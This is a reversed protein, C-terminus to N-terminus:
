RNCGAREWDCQLLIVSRSDSSTDIGIFGLQKRLHFWKETDHDVNDVTDIQGGDSFFDGRALGRGLRTIM